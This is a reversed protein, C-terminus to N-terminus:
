AQPLGMLRTFRRELATPARLGAFARKVQDGVAYPLVTDLTTGIRPVAGVRYCARPREAELAQRVIRAANGPGPYRKSERLSAALARYCASYEDCVASPRGIEQAAHELLASAHFSPEVLSVHVGFARTEMRLAHTLAHLGAKSASYWGAFPLVVRAATSSVNVIRGEGRRRMAPLVLRSIRAPAHVNVEMALRAQVEDVDEVARPVTVGANNVVAWPGGGTRSAIEDFVEGCAAADTVDLVLCRMRLGQEEARASLKDSKEQSRATAFVEYGARCLRVATELGIGSTAGTVVVSRGM